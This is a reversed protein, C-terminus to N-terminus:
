GWMQRGFAEHGIGEARTRAAAEIARAIQRPVQGVPLDLKESTGVM